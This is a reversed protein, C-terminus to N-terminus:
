QELTLKGIAVDSISEALSMEERFVSDVTSKGKM